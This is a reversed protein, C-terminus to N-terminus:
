EQKLAAHVVDVYPLMSDDQVANYVKRREEIEASGFGSNWAIRRRLKVEYFYKEDRWWYHNMRAIEIPPIAFLPHHSFRQRNVFVSDLGDTYHCVHIDAAVIYEPRVISKVLFNEGWDDWARHNLKEIQLDGKKLESVDSSGYMVWNFAVAPADLFTMLFDALNEGSPICIYEDSDFVALWEHNGRALEIAHDYMGKQMFIFDDFVQTTKKVHYLEVEGRLVYPELIDWYADTSGNDFLYFHKIGVARHYELWEKLFREENHFVMVAAIYGHRCDERNSFSPMIEVAPLKVSYLAICFTLSLVIRLIMTRDTTRPSDRDISFFLIFTFFLAGPPCPV